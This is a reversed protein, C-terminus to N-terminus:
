SDNARLFQGLFCSFSQIKNKKSLWFALLASSLLWVSWSRPYTESLHLLITLKSLLGSLVNFYISSCDCSTKSFIIVDSCQPSTSHTCGELLEWLILNLFPKSQIRCWIQIEQVLLWQGGSWGWELVPEGGGCRKTRRRLFRNKMWEGDNWGLLSDSTKTHRM